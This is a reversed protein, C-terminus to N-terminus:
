NRARAAELAKTSDLLEADPDRPPSHAEGPESELGPTRQRLEVLSRGVSAKGPTSSERLASDSPTPMPGAGRSTSPAVVAMGLVLALCAGGIM